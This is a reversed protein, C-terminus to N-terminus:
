DCLGWSQFRPSNQILMLRRELPHRMLDTFLDQAESREAQLTTNVRRVRDFVRELAYDYDFRGPPQAASEAASLPVPSEATNNAGVDWILTTAEQCEECDALLHRLVRRTEGAGLDGLMFGELEERTPHAEFSMLVEM